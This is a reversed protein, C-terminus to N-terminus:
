GISGLAPFWELLLYSLTSMSGTLFLLGTVVLMAGMTKEVKGMHHRYRKMLVMFPRAFFAAVVFPLGIGLAYVFLLIAGKAVDAESGAYLLIAALVPGM